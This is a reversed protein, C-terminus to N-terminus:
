AALAERRRGRHDHAAGVCDVACGRADRGTAGAFHYWSESEQDAQLRCGCTACTVPGGVSDALYSWSGGLERSTSM